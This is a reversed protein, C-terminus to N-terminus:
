QGPLFFVQVTYNVGDSYVPDVVDPQWAYPQTLDFATELSTPVPDVPWSITVMFDSGTESLLVPPGLTPSIPIISSITQNTGNATVTLKWDYNATSSYQHAVNTGSGHPSGDGFDWDYSVASSCQTLSAEARFPVSAGPFAATPALASAILLCQGSTV